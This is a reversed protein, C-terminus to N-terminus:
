SAQVAACKCWKRLQFSFGHCFRPMLALIDDSVEGENPIFPEMELRHITLFEDSLKVDLEHGSLRLAFEPEYPFGIPPPPPLAAQQLASTKAQHSNICYEEVEALNQNSRLIRGLRPKTIPFDQYYASADVYVDGQISFQSKGRELYCTKGDYSKYGEDFLFDHGRRIMANLVTASEYHFRLPYMKLSTIDQEGEFPWIKHCFEIPGCREGDFQMHYSDIKFPTWTGTNSSEERLMEDVLEEEDKGAYLDRPLFYSARERLNNMERSETSTRPRKLSQGGSVFYAKFLQASGDDSPAYILEGPQFLHWLDEFHIRQLTGAEIKSRLQLVDGLEEKVFDVLIRLHAYQVQALVTAEDDAHTAAVVSVDIQSEESPDEPESKSADHGTTVSLEKQYFQRTLDLHDKSVNEITIGEQTAGKTSENLKAELEGLRADM